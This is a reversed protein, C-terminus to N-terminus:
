NAKYRFENFDDSGVEDISGSRLGTWMRAALEDDLYVVSQEGEMGTGTYPVTLFTISKAQLGRLQWAFKLKRANTLASDLTVAGKIASILDRATGFDLVSVDSRVTTLLGALYSQQLQVRDFDGRPLNTRQRVYALAEDGNMKQPGARFVHGHHNTEFPVTVTVGGVADTVARFGFFDVIAFHDVRINTLQEITQVLLTPGGFAYAANIKNMGHGPVDVWSDRPISVVHTRDTRGDVRILMITDSRANGEDATADEGTTQGGAVSDTGMVLFFTPTSGDSERGPPSPRQAEDLGSFVDDVESFGGVVRDVAFWTVGSGVLTALAFVLALILVKKKSTSM